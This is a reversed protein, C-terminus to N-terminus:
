QPHQFTKQFNTQRRRHSLFKLVPIAILYFHLYKMYKLPGAIRTRPGSYPRSPGTVPPLIATQVANCFFGIDKSLRKTRPRTRDFLWCLCGSYYKGVLASRDENNTRCRVGMGRDESVGM